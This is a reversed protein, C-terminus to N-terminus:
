GAGEVFPVGSTRWEALDQRPLFLRFTDSSFPNKVGGDLFAGNRMELEVSSGKEHLRVILSDAEITKVLRGSNDHWNIQVLKLTGGDVSGLKSLKYYYLSSRRSILADLARQVERATLAAATPPGSAAPPPGAEAGSASPPPAAATGSAALEPFHELWAAVNVGDLDLRLGEAPLAVRAGGATRFGDHFRLVLNGLMHHLEFEVRAARIVASALGDAAWELLVVEDLRPAGAVRTARQFRLGSYGDTALLGNVVGVWPDAPTADGGPTQLAAAPQAPAAPEPEPRSAIRELLDLKEQESAYMRETMDALQERTARQDERFADMQDKMVGVLNELAPDRPVEVNLPTPEITVNPPEGQVVISPPEDNGRAWVFAIAALGIGLAVGGIAFLPASWSRTKRREEEMAAMQQLLAEQVEALRRFSRNLAQVDRLRLLSGPQAAAQHAIAQAEPDSAPSPLHESM